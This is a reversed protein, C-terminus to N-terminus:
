EREISSLGSSIEPFTIPPENRKLFKGWLCPSFGPRIRSILVPKEELFEIYDELYIESIKIFFARGGQTDGERKIEPFRVYGYRKSAVYGTTYDPNDSWCLEAVSGALIIKTALVIAEKVRHGKVGIREMEIKLSGEAEEEFDIRSVRIGRYPDPELREGTDMDIIMAGRMNNRDPSAGKSINDFARRIAIDSIGILSLLEASNKRSDEIGESLITSIPLSDTYVIEDKIQEVTFNIEDPNGIGHDMARNLLNFLEIALRNKPLIKEAGSIHRNGKSARMRLSYVNDKNYIMVM